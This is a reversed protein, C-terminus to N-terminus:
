GNEQQARVDAIVQKFGQYDHTSVSFPGVLFTPTGTLGLADGQAMNRQILADIEGRNNSLDKDLQAMDCGVATLASRMKEAPIGGRVPPIGMLAAHAAEYRGQRHAALALQAANLSTAGIVPWDKYVHRIGGDEKIVRQLVPAAKKCFPCNYDTFNIITVDGEPNGGVPAAPDNLIMEQTVQIEQAWVISKTALLGIGGGMVAMVARRTLASM